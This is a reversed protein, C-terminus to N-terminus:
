YQQQTSAPRQSSPRPASVQRVSFLFVGFGAACMGFLSTAAGIELGDFLMKLTAPVGLLLIVVYAGYIMWTPM